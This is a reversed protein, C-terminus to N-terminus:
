ELDPVENGYKSAVIARMAAILHTPGSSECRTEGYAGARAFYIPSGDEMRERQFAMEERDIIPGGHAWDKHPEFRKGNVLTGPRNWDRIRCLPEGTLTWAGMEPDHGIAKAVWYDLLAGSLEATKMM